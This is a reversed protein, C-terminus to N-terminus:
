LLLVPAAAMTVGVTAGENVGVGVGVVVGPAVSNGVTNYLWVGNPNSMSAKIAATTNHRAFTLFLFLFYPM